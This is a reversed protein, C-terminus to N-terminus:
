DNMKENLQIMKWGLPRCTESHSLALKYPRKSSISRILRVDYEGLIHSCVDGVVTITFNVTDNRNHIIYIIELVYHERKQQQCSFIEIKSSIPLIDKLNLVNM